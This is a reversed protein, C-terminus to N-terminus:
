RRMKEVRAITEKLIRLAKEKLAEPVEGRGFRSEDCVQYFERIDQLLPDEAGLAERLKMELDFRTIGHSSFNFKDALYHSLVKEADDFYEPKKKNLRRMGKEARAKALRRRKLASDKAFVEEQRRRLVGVFVTLLLLINGGALAKILLPQYFEVRSEPIREWIYRIDKGEVEIGKKYDDGGGLGKPLQVPQDSPEINLEFEPTSLTQYQKRAPNFFSFELKPISQKGPQTPIFVIEFTKRGGIVNGNKFLQSSTDADYIKFNKLEPIKPKNLTEINGEGEIIMKMTVPENQKVSNKDLTASMKFNGVAGQFNSPKGQEPFPKVTINIPPPKLLRDERQTFFGGGSFFSDNFFDDFVSNAEPEKRISAKLIGPDITYDAPTTPFLAVMKVDAKVYRKGNMHVTERRVDQGMPFEEIWFGSIQPEKDFGEYRTDYRTYLSYSLLIQENPYVEQKDVWARVFINDDEPKFNPPPEQQVPGSPTVAPPTANSPPLTSGRQIPMSPNFPANQSTYSPTSSGSGPLVEIEVPDTAFRRNEVMVEIPDLRHRGAEKPILTYSFEISSSSQGNIFSIHSARGTYFTDFARFGPLRPAQINGQAGIIRITLRIEEGVQASRKNFTSTIQVDEAICVSSGLGYVISLLVFLLTFFLERKRPTKPRPEQTQLRM